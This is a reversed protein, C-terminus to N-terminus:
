LAVCVAGSCTAACEDLDVEWSCAGARCVGHVYSVVSSHFCTPPPQPCDATAACAHEPAPPPQFPDPSPTPTVPGRTLMGPDYCTGAACRLGGVSGCTDVIQKWHCHGDDCSPDSFILQEDLGVCVTPPLGCDTAIACAKVPPGANTLCRGGGCTTGDPCEERGTIVSPGACACNDSYERSAVANGDCTPGPGCPIRGFGGMGNPSCAGAAGGTGASAAGGTGASAAGGTGASAAGGTGASAAGGPGSQCSFVFVVGVLVLGVGPAYRGVRMM